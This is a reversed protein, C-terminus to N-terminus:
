GRGARHRDSELQTLCQTQWLAVRETLGDAFEGSIDRVAPDAAAEEFADPLRAALSAVRDLVDDPDLRAARALATWDEATIDGLTGHGGIRMALRQRAEAGIRYPLVSIVDYLPALRVADEDLLLSYNKAHADTAGILWNLALCDVFRAIDGCGHRGAHQRLVEVVAAAGPGGSDEYKQSPMVALAQCLDEQHARYMVGGIGPRDFREVVVATQDEFSAVSTVAASLGLRRAVTLCLHENIDTHPLGPVTPKLIHTTPMAGTPVGWDGNAFHLATKRQGGALSFQLQMGTNIWAANHRMLDRLLEAVAFESLPEIRGVREVLYNVEDPECFQVAGACDRGVPTSLLDFADDSVGYEAGWERRVEDDDPLLGWLWPSILRHPHVGRTLPMCVSLPVSYPDAAYEPAYRFQLENGVGRRVEGVTLGGLLVTLSASSM